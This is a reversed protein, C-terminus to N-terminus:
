HRTLTASKISDPLQEDGGLRRPAIANQAKLRAKKFIVTTDWIGYIRIFEPRNREPWGSTPDWLSRRDDCPSPPTCMHGRRNVDTQSEETPHKWSFSLSLVGRM